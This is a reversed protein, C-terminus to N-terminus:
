CEIALQVASSSSSAADRDGIGHVTIQYPKHQRERIQQISALLEASMRDRQDQMAIMQLCLLKSM